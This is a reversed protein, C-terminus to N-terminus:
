SSRGKLILDVLDALLSAEGVNGPVVALARDGPLNWLSVGPLLPGEVRAWDAGLGERATVASTIGGKAVVVSASVLGAVEALAVALRRQATVDTLSRDYRRPTAVVALGCTAILERAAAAVRTAEAATPRHMLEHLDVEILTGPRAAELAALQATAAPVYSGCLVLVSSAASPPSARTTATTDALVAAFAPACRVIVPVGAREAERLGEAVIALDQDTEGDPVVVAPGEARWTESLAAAVVGAGGEGRLAGLEIRRARSAAFRGSSREEAWEPLAATSYAFTRDRAYETHHLPISEGERILMHVGHRTVRGAAPLALVLLLPPNGLTGAASRLAHYEEEVHGRLTSDGRLVIRASPFAARAAAAASKTLQAAEGGAYARSNTVIHLARDGAQAAAALAPPSWDLVVSVGAAAQTGTPDDDLVV